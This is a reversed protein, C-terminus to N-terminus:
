FEVQKILSTSEQYGWNHFLCCRGWPFTQISVSLSTKGGLSRRCISCMSNRRYCSLWTDVSEICQKGFCCRSWCSWADMSIYRVVTGYCIWVWGDFNMVFAKACCFCIYIYLCVYRLIELFSLTSNIFSIRMISKKM